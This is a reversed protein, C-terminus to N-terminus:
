ADDVMMDASLLFDFMAGGRTSVTWSPIQRGPSCRRPGVRLPGVINRGCTLHPLVFPIAVPCGAIKRSIPFFWHYTCRLPVSPALRSVILGEKPASRSLHSALPM